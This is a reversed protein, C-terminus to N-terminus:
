QRRRRAWLAASVSANATVSVEDPDAMIQATGQVTITAPSQMQQVPVPTAFAGEAVAGCASLMMVAALLAALMKKNM